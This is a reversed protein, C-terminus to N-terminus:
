RLGVSKLEAIQTTATAAVDPTIARRLEDPRCRTSRHLFHETVCHLASSAFTAATSPRSRRSMSSARRDAGDGIAALLQTKGSPDSRKVGRDVIEAHRRPRQGAM